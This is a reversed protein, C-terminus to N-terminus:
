NGKPKYGSLQFIRDNDTNELLAIIEVENNRMYADVIQWGVWAAVRGPCDKSIEYVNPREGLFKRKIVHNTEYLIENQVFNAWIIAENEQVAMMEAPTYGMIVSDTVCPMLQTLLYYSKGFDIMESLMSEKKGSSILGSTLFKMITVPLHQKDYRRLIYAPIDMPRYTAGEGIFYDLGLIILSDTIYLDNYLGTVMTQIKPTRTEPYISKLRGIAGELTRETSEFDEFADRSEQYLTDIFPDKILDFIRKALIGNNPYENSHLFFRATSTNKDLFGKVEEVSESAFLEEELRQM